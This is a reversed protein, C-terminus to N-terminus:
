SHHGKSCNEMFFLQIKDKINIEEKSNFISFCMSLEIFSSFIIEFFYSIMEIM